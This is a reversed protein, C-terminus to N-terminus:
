QLNKADSPEVIPLNRSLAVRFAEDNIRRAFTTLRVRGKDRGSRGWLGGIQEWVGDRTFRVRHALATRSLLFLSVTHGQEAAQRAKQRHRRARVLRGGIVKTEGSARSEFPLFWHQARAIPPMQSVPRAIGDAIGEDLRRMLRAVDRPEIRGDVMYGILARRRGERLRQFIRAHEEEPCHRRLFVATSAGIEFLDLPARTRTRRDSEAYAHHVLALPVIATAHGARALRLNLDTEDLYFRYAPDFGGMEALVDRRVAMNTGETKIARGDAPTLLVPADGPVDLPQALGTHDVSRAKWQFSIGNRGLVYGGAAAAEPFRFGQVLHDLWAPEPVADDDIFAVIEGAAEAIGLNRAASINPEDCGVTKIEEAFGAARVAALGTRDAVVIIEYAPYYLRALGTLCLTLSVPRGRSVVIVSVTPAGTM